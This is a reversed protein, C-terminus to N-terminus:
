ETSETPPVDVTPPPTPPGPPLTPDCHVTVQVPPESLRREPSRVELQSTFSVDGEPINVTVSDAVTKTGAGLFSITELPTRTEPDQLGRRRVFNFTVEGDGRLASISGKFYVTIPCRVNYFASTQGTDSTLVVDGVRVDEKVRLQTISWGSAILGGAILVLGPVPTKLKLGKYEIETDGFKVRAFLFLHVLGALVLILGVVLLATLGWTEPQSM